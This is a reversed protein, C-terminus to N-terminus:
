AFSGHIGWSGKTPNRSFLFPSFMRFANEETADSERGRSLQDVAFPCTVGRLEWRNENTVGNAADKRLALGKKRLPRISEKEFKSM